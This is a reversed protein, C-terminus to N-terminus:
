KQKDNLNKPWVVRAPASAHAEVALANSRPAPDASKTVSAGASVTAAATDAAKTVVASLENVRQKLAEIESNAKSLKDLLDAEQSEAAKNSDEVEAVFASLQDLITKLKAKREASMKRGAKALEDTKALLAAVSEEVEVVEALAESAKEAPKSEAGEPASDVPAPAAASAQEVKEQPAAEAAKAAEDTSKAADPAAQSEDAKSQAEPASSGAASAQADVPKYGGKGDSQLEAGAKSAKADNKIMLFRRKNAPVDVSSIEHVILDSLRMVTDAAAAVYVQAETTQAKTM